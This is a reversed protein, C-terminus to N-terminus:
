IGSAAHDGGQWVLLGSWGGAVTAAAGTAVTVAFTQWRTLTLADVRGSLEGALMGSTAICLAAGISLIEALYM